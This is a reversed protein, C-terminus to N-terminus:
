CPRPSCMLVVGLSGFFLQAFVVLQWSTGRRKSALIGYALLALLLAAPLAPHGSTLLRPADHREAFVLDYTAAPTLLGFVLSCKSWFTEISIVTTTFAALMGLILMVSSPFIAHMIEHPKDLIGVVGVGLTWSVAGLVGGIVTDSPYHAGVNVRAFSTSALALLVIGANTTGSLAWGLTRSVDLAILSFVVSCAAARSPFSSTKDGRVRKARYVMWPRPRWVYRKLFQSLISLVSISALAARATSNWGGAYLILPWTLGFEIATVFTMVQSFIGVFGKTRTQCLGILLDDYPQLVAELALPFEWVETGIRAETGSREFCTHSCQRWPDQCMTTDENVSPKEYLEDDSSEHDSHEPTISVLSNERSTGSERSEEQFVTKIPRESLSRPFFAKRRPWKEAFADACFSRECGAMRNSSKTLNQPDVKARADQRDEHPVYEM